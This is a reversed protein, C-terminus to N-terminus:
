IVNRRTCSVCDFNRGHEMATAAMRRERRQGRGKAADAQSKSEEAAGTVEAAKDDWTLEGCLEEPLDEWPIRPASTNILQRLASRKFELVWAREPAKSEHQLPWSNTVMPAHLLGRPLGHLKSLIICLPRKSDDNDDHTQRTGGALQGVCSKRSIRAEM